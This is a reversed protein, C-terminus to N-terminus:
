QVKEYRKLISNLAPCGNGAVPCTGCLSSDCATEEVVRLRGKHVWFMLMGELAGTEIHLQRSLQRLSVPGDAEELAQLVEYLPSM